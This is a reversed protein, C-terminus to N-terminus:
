SHFNTKPRWWFVVHEFHSLKNEVGPASSSASISYIDPSRRHSEPHEPNEQGAGLGLLCIMSKPSTCKMMKNQCGGCTVCMFGGMDFSSANQEQQLTKLSNLPISVASKLSNSPFEQPMKFSNSLIGPM